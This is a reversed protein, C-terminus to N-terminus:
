EQLGGRATRPGGEDESGEVTVTGSNNWRITNNDTGIEHHHPAMEELLSSYVKRLNTVTLEEDSLQKHNHRNTNTTRQTNTTTTNIIFQNANLLQKPKVKFSWCNNCAIGKCDDGLICKNNTAAKNNGKTNNNSLLPPAHMMRLGQNPNVPQHHNGGKKHSLPYRFLDSM